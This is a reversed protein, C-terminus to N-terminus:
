RPQPPRLVTSANEIRFVDRNGPEVSVKLWHAPGPAGHTMVRTVNQLTKGNFKVPHDSLARSARGRDPSPGGGHVVLVQGAYKSALRALDTKLTAYPDIGGALTHRGEFHPDASFAVVLGRTKLRTAATFAQRLWSSDAQIREEYEGNRGAGTRYNNHNGPVNLTVFLVDGYEWRANEPYGRFSATESQRQLDLKLMGLSDDPEFFLERLRNLREVPGFQGAAPRDCDAWDNEGPALVLPVPSGDLLAHRRAYTRDDCREDRGKINGTHIALDTETGFQALMQTVITEEADHAPVDGLLAFAFGQRAAYGSEANTTARMPAIPACALAVALLLRSWPALRPPTAIM